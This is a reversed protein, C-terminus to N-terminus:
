SAQKACSLSVIYAFDHLRRMACGRGEGIVAGLDTKGGGGEGGYLLIDAESLKADLQPGVSPIWLDDSFRQDILADLEARDAEPLGQYHSLLEDIATSM